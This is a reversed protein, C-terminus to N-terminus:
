SRKACRPCLEVKSLHWGAKELEKQTNRDERGCPCKVHWFRFEYQDHEYEVAQGYEESMGNETSEQYGKGARHRGSDDTIGKGKRRPDTFSVASQIQALKRKQLITWTNYQFENAM